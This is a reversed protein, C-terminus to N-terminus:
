ILNYDRMTKDFHPVVIGAVLLIKCIDRGLMIKLKGTEINEVLHKCNYSDLCNNYVAYKGYVTKNDITDM